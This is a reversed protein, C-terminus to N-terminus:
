TTMKGRGMINGEELRGGNCSGEVSMEELHSTATTLMDALLVSPHVELPLRPAMVM